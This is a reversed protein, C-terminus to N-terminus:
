LRFMFSSLHFKYHHVSFVLYTLNVLSEFLWPFGMCLFHPAPPCSASTTIPFLTILTFHFVQSGIITFSVVYLFGLGVLLNDRPSPPLVLALVSFFSSAVVMRLHFYFLLWSLLSCARSMMQILLSYTQARHMHSLKM